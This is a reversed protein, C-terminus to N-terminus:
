TAPRTPWRSSKNSCGAKITEFPRALVLAWSFFLLSGAIMAADLLTRLRSALRRAVSPFTLLGAIFLPVAALYGADALSPFPVTVRRVLDYDCWVFQGAAWSACSAALLAWSLRARSLRWAALGCMMAAVMPAALQGLNDIIDVCRAGGARLAVCLLFVASSIAFVAAALWFGHGDRGRDAM